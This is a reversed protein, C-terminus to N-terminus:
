AVVAWSHGDLWERSRLLSGEVLGIQKKVSAHATGGETTRRNVVNELKLAEFVDSDFLTSHSKFEELSLAGLHVGKQLCYRVLKGVVEHADRFPLGRKALYDAADTANTFGEDAAKLMRESKVSWSSVMAAVVKLSGLVTDITDFFGEKDEQMDKNYTLPLGKLTTLIGMLSGYVRGSKGRVLEAFDPNKKQPMMSSGTSLTDSLEIFGFEGSCWIVIEECLRSLHTMILASSAQYEVVFDRDSVADMSNAYVGDFNLASAVTGRNLPFTTGAIAGSGLPLLNIRKWSDIMRQIDREFMQVYALLHHAFLVPQARQLHTYGPMIVALNEKAQQLLESQLELLGAVTLVVSERAFLHMDTAVQDNRSRATHLKGAVPGILEHLHREINLHIDEDELRFQLENRELKALLQKLGTVIQIADQEPIIGTEALM